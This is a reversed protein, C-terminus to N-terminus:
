LKCGYVIRFLIFKKVRSVYYADKLHFMDLCMRECVLLGECFFFVKQVDSLILKLASNKVKM